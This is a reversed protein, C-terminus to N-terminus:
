CNECKQMKPLDRKSEGGKRESQRGRRARQEGRKIKANKGRKYNTIYM